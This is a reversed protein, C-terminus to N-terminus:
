ISEAIINVASAINESKIGGYGLVFGNSQRPHFYYHGLARLAVGKSAASATMRNTDVSANFLATLHLGASGGSMTVENGFAQTLASRLTHQREAYIGRMRRIHTSFYGESIFDALAAQVTFQGPRYLQVLGKKFAGALKEPLVMYSIRLGPFMVKSFTGCYIVRQYSDLGQLSSVPSRDYRFESDYDDEVIWFGYEAALETLQRRRQLTLAVGMPYQHSPSTFLLRPFPAAFSFQSIDIGQDDVPVPIVNLGAAQWLLATSWNCPDETLASDGPDALMHACLSLSQNSGMTILIQEPQCVVSRSVQLYHALAERLPLYGGESDYGTMHAAPRRIHRNQMRKWVPFPFNSTEVVGPVFAGAHQSVGSVGSIMIKARSSLASPAESPAPVLRVAASPAIDAVFTGKGRQCLLYGEASLRDYTLTLTMRSVGLEASLQRTSPLRSGSILMGGLIAKQIISFIRVQLPRHADADIDQLILDCLLVSQSTSM